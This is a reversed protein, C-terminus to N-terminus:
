DKVPEDPLEARPEIPEAAGSALGRVAIGGKKTEFLPLLRIGTHRAAAADPTLMVLRGDPAREMVVRGLAAYLNRQDSTGVRVGYPPNTVIWTRSDRISAASLSNKEFAVDTDVGARYANAQAATIAGADRDSGAITVDSSAVIRGRADEVITNWLMRDFGPWHEFAYARPTRERNALGPAIGRAILAAEIPITGSGCLPDLLPARAAWNSGVLLSAALTERLPAKAVAQRYGRMHLLVGSADASIVCEDRVFRVVFMQHEHTDMEDEDRGAVAKKVSGVKAEMSLMLREAIAGEHYLKSKSSSVRLTVSGGRTVYQQWPIDKAHRELEFFTRARFTAIRVLVRSAARLELNARYLLAHGGAFNVGGPVVSAVAGLAAVERAVLGELGPAAIAFYSGQREAGAPPQKSSVPRAGGKRGSKRDRKPAGAKGAGAKAAGRVTRGRPRDAAEKEAQRKEARNLPRGAEEKESKSKM